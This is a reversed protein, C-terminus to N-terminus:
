TGSRVSEPKAATADKWRYFDVWRDCIQDMSTRERAAARTLVLRGLQTKRSYGTLKQITSPGKTTVTFRVQQKRDIRIVGGPWYQGNSGTDMNALRQGDLAARFGRDYGPARLRLGGPSFYQFSVRWEGPPLTTTAEASKGPLLAAGPQWEDGYIVKTEPMLVARGNIKRFFRGAEGECDVLKAPMTMERMIPRGFAPGTRRWLIYDATRAVERYFPPPASQWGASTTIAFDFNDFTEPAFSDFDITSQGRDGQFPKKPNEIVDPDPFEDLPVGVRSGSLHWPAFRDQDLYLVSHGQVKGRFSALEAGHGPPSVPADRLVMFSSAAAGAVFVTALVAWGAVAAAGPRSPGSLLATLIVVMTVPASVALAKALSYEGMWPLSVLYVFLCGLFAAPWVSPRGRFWWWLSLLLAAVGVIGCVVPLITESSGNLRYDHNLWVGLGELPSVPGFADSKAVEAFDKGFGFPGAFALAVVVLVAGAVWVLVPMHGVSRALAAPRMRARARPDAIAAAVLVAAPWVLGPFSYSFVIGAVLIGPVLLNRREFRGAPRGLLYAIEVTFALLMLAAALEKFAAQAFYAAPLYAVAVLVAALARRWSGLRDLAVLATWATLLVIAMLQGTFVTALNLKPLFALVAALAHPGLPYGPGPETGFGSRLWDAWALHLGLDNNYGMGLIGWHGTLLFPINTAVFAIALTVVLGASVEPLDARRPRRVLWASGALLLILGVILLWRGGPIRALLGEVAILTAFGAVPELGSWRERGALRTIARGVLISFLMVLLLSLWSAAM